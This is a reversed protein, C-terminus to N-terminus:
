SKLKNFVKRMPKRFLEKEYENMGIIWIAGIFVLVYVIGSCIFNYLSYLNVSKSIILGCIVAVILAPLFGVINKWFLKIDLGIKSNYYWNMIIGNGIIFSIATGIAAGLGGYKKALPITMGVNLITIALYVWSRFRHMNKARQIEIGINQILPITVPLVLLLMISYSESYNSGAWLNIFPKGFFILGTAILSLLIFQIRGIRIFLNTLAKDSDEKGVLQHVRPVFVSSIATAISIYYANLQSALGYIAVSVTGHFRGLIFKDVNWNIQDVIMNIFIFSSFMTMEKMLKFDFERFSFRMNLKRKCFLVNSIAIIINLTTTGVVMGVSGYGMLLLPLVIFPNLLVRLMQMIKQFIFRENAMIHSSFVINPFSVALNFVLIMILIKSKFLEQTTLASGFVVETNAALISGAIIAVLGLVSFIILFMGNLKAINDKEDKIKYRSYYRMYASGFGFNLIGLYAVISAVLNYLGYESQGLLRLMIPTYIISVVYGLGMSVYSLIAGIKLQNVVLKSKM